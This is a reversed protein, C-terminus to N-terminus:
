SMQSSGGNQAQDDVTADHEFLDAVLQHSTGVVAAAIAPNFFSMGTAHIQSNRLKRGSHLLDHTQEDVLKAALARDILKAFTGKEGADFRVRLAAEVAQLSRTAADFFNEYTYYGDVFLQRSRALLAAVGEPTQASLRWKETRGQLAEISMPMPRGQEDIDGAFILSRSDPAREPM